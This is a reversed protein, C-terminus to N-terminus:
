SAPLLKNARIVRAIYDAIKQYGYPSPHCINDSDVEQYNFKVWDVGPQQGVDGMVLDTDIDAHRREIFKTASATDYRNRPIFIVVPQLGQAKAQQAYFNLLSVLNQEIEASEFALFYEPLGLKRFQKQLKRYYFYNSRLSDILAALYPFGPEPKAWFDSDFANNAAQKFQELSEFVRDGPHDVIKGEAMFPKLSYNSSTSYLVPRYSNVMRYLNEYMIGLVVVKARPYRTVNKSFNLLSQTPGYGGVGHNAVSVGLHASLRAPYADDDGVEDGNTYSDGVIIIEATAPDYHAYTRAGAADYHYEVKTGLCNADSRVQPGPTHWGLVPDSGEDVFRALDQENLRALVSQRHDFLDERDVVKTALFAFIELAAFMFGLMIVYFALKKGM